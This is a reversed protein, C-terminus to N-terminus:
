ASLVVKVCDDQKHKFTEYAQPAEELSLRHSIV